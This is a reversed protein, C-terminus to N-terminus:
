LYLIYALAVALIVDSLIMRYSFHAIFLLFVLRIAVSIAVTKHPQGPSSLKHKPANNTTTLIAGPACISTNPLLSGLDAVVIPSAAKHRLAMKIAMGTTVQNTVRRFTAVSVAFSSNIGGAEYNLFVATANAVATKKM